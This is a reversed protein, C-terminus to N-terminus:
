EHAIKISRARIVGRKSKKGVVVIEQGEQLAQMETHPVREDEQRQVLTRDNVQVAVVETEDTDQKKYRGAIISVDPKSPHHAVGIVTVRYEQQELSGSGQQSREQVQVNNRQVSPTQKESQEARPGQGQSTRAATQFLSRNFTRPVAMQMAGPVADFRYSVMVEGTDNVQRLADREAKSLYDELKVVSGDVQMATAAPVRISLQSSRFYRTM